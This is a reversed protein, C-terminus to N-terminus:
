NLVTGKPRLLGRGILYARYERDHQRRQAKTMTLRKVVKKDARKNM